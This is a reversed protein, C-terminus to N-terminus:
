TFGNATLPGDALWLLSMGLGLGSFFRSQEFLHEGRLWNPLLLWLNAEVECMYNPTAIGLSADHAYSYPKLTDVFRFGQEAFFASRWAYLISSEKFFVAACAKPTLDMFRRTTAFLSTQYREALKELFGISPKAAEIEAKIFIEPMLLESAFENADEELNEQRRKVRWDNLDRQDCTLSVTRDRHLEFHGLEHAISFRTRAASSNNPNVTIIGRDGSVTLRAEAGDLACERVYAGRECCMEKLHTLLEPRDIGLESLIHRAKVKALSM